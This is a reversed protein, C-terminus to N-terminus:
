TIRNSLSRMLHSLVLWARYSQSSTSSLWQLPQSLILVSKPHLTLRLLVVFGLELFHSLPGSIQSDSVSPDPIGPRIFSFNHICSVRLETCM